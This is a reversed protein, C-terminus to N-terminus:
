KASGNSKNGLLDTGEYLLEEGPNIEVTQENYYKDNLIVSGGKTVKLQLPYNDDTFIIRIKGRYNARAYSPGQADFLVTQSKNKETNGALDVSYFELIHKGRKGAVYNDPTIKSDYRVFPGPITGPEYIRFYTFEAQSIKDWTKILIKAKGGVWMGYRDFSIPPWIEVRSEPPHLDIWFVIRKIPKQNLVPEPTEFIEVEYMGPKDFQLPTKDYKKRPLPRKPPKMAQETGPTIDALTYYLPDRDLIKNLDLKNGILVLKEGGGPQIISAFIKEPQQTKKETTESTKTTDSKTDKKSISEPDKKNVDKTSTSETNDNKKKTIIKPVPKEIKIIESWPGYVQNKMASRIRFYEFRHPLRRKIPSEEVKDRMSSKPSPADKDSMKKELWEVIYYIAGPSPEFFVTVQFTDDAHHKETQPYAPQWILLCLLYSLLIGQFYYKSTFM